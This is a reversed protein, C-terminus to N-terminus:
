RLLYNVAFVWVYPRAVVRLRRVENEGWGSDRRPSLWGIEYVNM